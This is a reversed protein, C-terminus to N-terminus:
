THSLQLVSKERFCLKFVHERIRFVSLPQYHMGLLCPVKVWHQKLTPGDDEVSAWCQFLMPDVDRTQQAVQNCVSSLCKCHM